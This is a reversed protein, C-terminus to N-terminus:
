IVLVLERPETGDLEISYVKRGAAKEGHMYHLLKIADQIVDTQRLRTSTVLEDLMDEVPPALNLSIKKRQTM